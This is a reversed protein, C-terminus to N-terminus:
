QAQGLWRLGIANLSGVEVLAKEWALVAEALSVGQAGDGLRSAVYRYLYPTFAEHILTFHRELAERM